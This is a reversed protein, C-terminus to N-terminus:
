GRGVPIDRIALEVATEEGEVARRMRELVSKKELVKREEDEVYQMSRNVFRDREEVSKVGHVQLPHVFPTAAREYKELIAKEVSLFLQEGADQTANLANIVGTVGKMQEILEELEARYNNMNPDLSEMSSNRNHEVLRSQRSLTDHRHMKKVTLEGCCEVFPDYAEMFGEAETDNVENRADRLKQWPLRKVMEGVYSKIGPVVSLVRECYELCKLLRQKQQTGMNAFENYTTIRREEEKKAKIQEDVIERQKATLQVLEAAKRQIEEVLKQKASIVAYLNDKMEREKVKYEELCKEHTAGEQLLKDSCKKIDEQIVDRQNSHYDTFQQLAELSDRELAQLEAIFGKEQNELNQSLFAKLRQACVEVLEYRAAILQRHTREVELVDGGVVARKHAEIADQVKKKAADLPPDFEALEERMKGLLDVFQIEYLAGCLESLDRIIDRPQHPKLINLNERLLLFRGRPFEVTSDRLTSLISEVAVVDLPQRSLLEAIKERTVEQECFRMVKEETWGCPAEHKYRECMESAASRLDFGRSSLPLLRSDVYGSYNEATAIATEALEILAAVARHNEEEQVLRRPYEPPLLNFSNLQVEIM